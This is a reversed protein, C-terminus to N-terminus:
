KGTIYRVANRVMEAAEGRTVAEDPRFSGDEYGKVIGMAALDNVASEAWHGSMDSFKVADMKGLEEKVLNLFYDWGYEDLIRHPCYKGSFDQHKKVRSIDWGYDKMLKATLYAANKMAAEFRSGGSKSYCIEISIYKRNGEGSGGDGAHWANRDLPIGQVIEKDDAAYHFSVKNDNSLMYSIENAASADNATNHICIGKPTMSFPSKISYKEPPCLNQKIEM